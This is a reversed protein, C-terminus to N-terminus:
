YFPFSSLQLIPSSVPTFITKICYSRDHLASFDSQSFGILADFIFLVRNFISCIMLALQFISTGLVCVYLCKLEAKLFFRFATFILRYHAFMLNHFSFIFASDKYPRVGKITSNVHDQAVFVVVSFASKNSICTKM